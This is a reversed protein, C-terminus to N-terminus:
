GHDLWEWFGQAGRADVAPVLPEVDGLPWAWNSHEARDSDNITGGFEGVIDFSQVPTGLIGTAVVASRALCGPSSLARELLPVATEPKLCTTWAEKGRLRMLLGAIEDRKIPRAGAHIAIRQGCIARPAPWSRFEYPKAGIAILTAWPQWITLAKM